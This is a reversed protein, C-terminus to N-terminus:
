AVRGHHKRHPVRWYDRVTSASIGFRTAIEHVSGIMRLQARLGLIQYRLNILERARAPTLSPKRGTLKM